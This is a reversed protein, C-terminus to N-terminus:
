KKRDIVQEILAALEDVAPSPPVQSLADRAKQAMIDAQVRAVEVAGSERLKNLMRTIPDDAVPAPAVAVAEQVAIGNAHAIAVGRNQAVDLGRPKGMEEPDGILDLIDDVIQFTSGLYKGYDSLAQRTEEDGGAILSGLEAAAVFLSATKREIVKKYTERNMEGAKAASAQLTEGEVLTTAAHAMVKNAAVGYSAMLEYVKTFMYDGTLLAFTRGWREHVSIKGRRLASHDNIDDHVLSATHIMEMACAADVADLINQGGSALYALLAVRPRVRKGGSSIIHLSADRLTDVDCTIVASLREEVADLGIQMQQELM